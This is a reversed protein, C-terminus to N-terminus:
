VVSKRDEAGVGFFKTIGDAYHIYKCDFAKATAHALRFAWLELRQRTKTGSLGVHLGSRDEAPIDSMSLNYESLLAQAKAAASAAEHPNDSRSLALLKRVREIISAHEAKM